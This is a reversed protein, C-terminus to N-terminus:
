TFSKRYLLQLLQVIYVFSQNEDIATSEKDLACVTDKRSPFEVAFLPSEGMFRLPLGRKQNLLLSINQM